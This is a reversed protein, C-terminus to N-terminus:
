KKMQEAQIATLAITYVIDDVLAGRSLDNVPKRLGQLMPGVSVVNASRQVAKYTTNGTNLDPFIIVNAEGAVKSGPAKQKGVSPVTAADYQLPGDVMIDPRREKVLATAEAIKEVAAGAGSTGTSYSIMAVKPTIGFAQASDASQIAIDALNNATPEPNIACDGYVLVQEPMLMFFISSVLDEDPRTKILQLAPRVTNATTHVAGSVLGDVEDLALMMTGLVVTDNLQESAEEEKLGKHKRMQVMPAIYKAKVQAPDLIEISDPLQINYEQAVQKIHEPEGLLVCQAIHKEQCIAAAKITRPEDGEPLVIRKNAKKALDMLTYRFMPPTMRTDEPADLLAVVDDSFNIKNAVAGVQQAIDQHSETNLPLIGWCPIHQKAPLHQNIQEQLTQASTADYLIYGCVNPYEQLAMGLELAILEAAAHKASVILITKAHLTQAIKANISAVKNTDNGAVGEIVTVKNSSQYHEFFNAVIEELVDEEKGHALLPKIRSFLLPTSEKLHLTKQAFQNAHEHKGTLNAIPEFFNTSYGKNQLAQILGFTITNLEPASELPALFFRSM